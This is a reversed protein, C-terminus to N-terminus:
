PVPAITPSEQATLKAHISDLKKVIEAGWLRYGEASPHLFDNMREREIRLQSDPATANQFFAQSEFYEVQDREQAYRQLEANITQIVPWYVPTKGRAQMLFGTHDSTRPLLGNIVVLASPQRMRLEEVIRVVGLLVMEASCGTNALDNTGILVWFVLLDASAATEPTHKSLKEDLSNGGGLPKNNTNHSGIEGNQIRWLLNPTTDGSIGQTTAEYRGGHQKSFLSEFVAPAGVVRQDNRNYFKGSWGETISDGLFIVDLDEMKHFKFNNRNLVHVKEWREDDTRAEPILPNSCGCTDHEDGELCWAEILDVSLDSIKKVHSLDLKTEAAPLRLVTRDIIHFLCLLCLVMVALFRYNNLKRRRRKEKLQNKNIVVMPFALDIKPSKRKEM